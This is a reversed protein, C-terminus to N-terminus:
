RHEVTAVVFQLGGKAYRSLFPSAMSRSDQALELEGVDRILFVAGLSDHPVANRSAVEHPVDVLGQADVVPVAAAQSKPRGACQNAARSIGPQKVTLTEIQLRRRGPPAFPSDIVDSIRQM